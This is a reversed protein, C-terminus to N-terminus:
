DSVWVEKFRGESWFYAAAAGEPESLLLYAGNTRHSRGQKKGPGAATERIERGHMCTLRRKTKSEALVHPIAKDGRRILAILKYERIGIVQAMDLDGDADLDIECQSIIAGEPRQATAEGAVSLLFLALFPIYSRRM